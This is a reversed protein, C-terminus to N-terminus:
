VGAAFALPVAVIPNRMTSSPPVAFPPTSVLSGCVNVMETGATLSGGVKVLPASTATSSSEPAFVTAPQAVPMLLPAAFSLECVSVKVAVGSSGDSNAAPGSM